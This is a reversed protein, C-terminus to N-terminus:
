LNKQLIIEVQIKEYLSKREIVKFSKKILFEILEQNNEHTDIQIIKFGRERAYRETENYLRSGIGEERHELSVRFNKIELINKEKKHPQFIISGIIKKNKEVFFCKKYNSILENKCKAVWTKYNPYDLDFSEIYECIQNIKESSDTTFINGGFDWFGLNGNCEIPKIREVNKLIFGFNGWDSTALHLNKDKEFEYKNDKYNKVDIIEAKGLIFGCPLDNFGFKKMADVDPIKSSHIFFKGRFKTNWKRLEIRKKEQLILEAWPQKISLAKM